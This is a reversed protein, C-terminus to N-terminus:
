RTSRVRGRLAPKRTVRKRVRAELARMDAALATAASAEMARYRAIVEAGFETLSAAGGGRGGMTTAVVPRDFLTNLADVLLWARRYSMKMTRAAGSISGEDRVAELLQIKGPGLWEAPKFYVRLFLHAAM